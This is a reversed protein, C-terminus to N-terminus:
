LFVQFEGHEPTKLSKSLNMLDRHSQGPNVTTPVVFDEFKAGFSYVLQLFANVPLLLMNKSVTKLHCARAYSKEKVHDAM